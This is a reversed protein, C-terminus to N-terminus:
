KHITNILKMHIDQINKMNIDPTYLTIDYNNKLRKLLEIILVEGGGVLDIRPTVFGISFKKSM